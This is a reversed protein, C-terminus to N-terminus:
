HSHPIAKTRARIWSIAGSDPPWSLCLGFSAYLKCSISFNRLSNGPPCIATVMPKFADQM